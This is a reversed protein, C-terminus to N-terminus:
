SFFVELGTLVTCSQELGPTPKGEGGTGLVELSWTQLSGWVSTRWTLTKPNRLARGAKGLFWNRASLCGREQGRVGGRQEWRTLSFEMKITSEGYPLPWVMICNVNNNSSINGNNHTPQGKRSCTGQLCTQKKTKGICWWEATIGSVLCSSMVHKFVRILDQCIEM